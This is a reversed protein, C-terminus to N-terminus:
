GIKYHSQAGTKTLEKPGVEFNRGITLNTFIERSAREGHRSIEVVMELQLRDGSQDVKLALAVACLCILFPISERIIKM